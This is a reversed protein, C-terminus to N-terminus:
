GKKEADPPPLYEDLVADAEAELAKSPSPHTGEVDTEKESYHFFGERDPILRKIKILYQFMRDLEGRVNPGRNSPSYAELVRDKRIIGPMERLLGILLEFHQPHISAPLAMIEIGTAGAKTLPFPIIFQEHAYDYYLKVHTHDAEQYMRRDLAVYPTGNNAVIKKFGLFWLAEKKPVM